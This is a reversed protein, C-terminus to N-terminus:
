ETGSYTRDLAGEALSLSLSVWALAAPLADVLLPRESAEAPCLGSLEAAYDAMIPPESGFGAALATGTMTPRPGGIEPYGALPM